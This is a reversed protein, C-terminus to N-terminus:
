ECVEFLKRKAMDLWWGVEGGDAKTSSFYFDGEKDVGIIIAIDLKGKAAELIREPSLDLRTIVPLDIVNSMGAGGNLVENGM